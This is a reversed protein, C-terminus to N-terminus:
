ENKELVLVLNDKFMKSELSLPNTIGRCIMKWYSEKLGRAIMEENDIFSTSFGVSKLLDSLGVVL